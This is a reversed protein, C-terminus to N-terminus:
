ISITDPLSDVLSKLSAVAEQIAGAVVAVLLLCALTKRAGDLVTNHLALFNTLSRNIEVIM